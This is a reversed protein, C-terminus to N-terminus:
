PLRMGGPPTSRAGPDIVKRAIAAARFPLQEYLGARERNPCRRRIPDAIQEHMLGCGGREGARQVVASSGAWLADLGIGAATAVVMQALTGPVAIGRVAMLDRISFHLGVRFM